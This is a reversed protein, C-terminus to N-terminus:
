QRLFRVYEGSLAAPAAGDAGPGSAVPHQAALAEEWAPTSASAAGWCDFYSQVSKFPHFAVKGADCAVNGSWHGCAQESLLLRLEDVRRVGIAGLCLTLFKDEGFAHSEDDPPHSM